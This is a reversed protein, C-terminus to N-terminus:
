ERGFNDCSDCVQELKAVPIIGLIFFFLRTLNTLYDFLYFVDDFDITDCFFVDVDVVTVYM